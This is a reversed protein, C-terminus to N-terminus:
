GNAVASTSIDLVLPGNGTPVGIAVPNTSIRGATGGPPAVTCIVGNDNVAVLAALGAAAAREVWEGLRGVHGSRRLTGTAAGHERAKACARDVLRGCQVQGFGLGGDASLMAPTEAVITFPAGPVLEGNKIQGLYWRALLVGHSDYGRLSSEVLSAAIAGAEDSSAGAATFLRTVFDRLTERSFRLMDSEKQKL